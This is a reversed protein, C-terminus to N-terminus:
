SVPQKGVTIRGMADLSANMRGHQDINWYDSHGTGPDSGFATGGFAPRPPIPDQVPAGHTGPYDPAAPTANSLHRMPDDDGVTHYVRQDMQGSDVGTLHLGSPHDVGATPAAVFVLADADVEGDRATIGVVEGGYSHGLLTNHSPGGTMGDDHTVRLGHEFNRLDGSAKEAYGSGAADPFIEQPAEYDMWTIVSTNAGADNRTAAMVM